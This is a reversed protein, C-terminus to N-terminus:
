NIFNIPLKYTVPVSRGNHMGPNWRPMSNVIRLAEEDCGGGLGRVVLAKQLEGEKSVVFQVIVQGSIGKEKAIAPYKLTSYIFKNMAEKGEPFSPMQEIYMFPEAGLPKSAIIDNSTDASNSTDSSDEIQNFLKSILSDTRVGPNTASFHEEVNSIMTYKVTHINTSKLNNLQDATLSYIAKANDKVKESVESESCTIVSGNDLYILLQGSFKEGLISINRRVAFFGFESEKAICVDLGYSYDTGPKFTIPKTCPYRREGIMFISQGKTTLNALLVAITIFLIKHM